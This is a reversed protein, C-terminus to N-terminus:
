GGVDSQILPIVSALRREPGEPRVPWAVLTRGYRHHRKRARQLATQDFPSRATWATLIAADDRNSGTLFMQREIVQASQLGSYQYAFTVADRLQAEGREADLERETVGDTYFVLLSDAPLHVLHLTLPVTAAIGLPVDSHAYELITSGDANSLVPAPHGANAFVFTNRHTDLMALIATAHLDPEFERLRAGAAALAKAPDLGLHAADRVAERIAVMTQFAEVGHGRVDGISLAVIHQSVVFAECWDGSHDGGRAPM